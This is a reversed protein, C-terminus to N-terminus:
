SDLPYNLSNNYNLCPKYQQVTILFFVQFHTMETKKEKRNQLGLM